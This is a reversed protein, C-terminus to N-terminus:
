GALSIIATIIIANVHLYTNMALFKAQQALSVDVSAQQASLPVDFVKDFGWQFM